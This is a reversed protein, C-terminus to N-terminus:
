VIGCERKILNALYDWINGGEIIRIDNPNVGIISKLLRCKLNLAKTHSLEKGEIHWKGDAWRRIVTYYKGM